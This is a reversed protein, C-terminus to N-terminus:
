YTDEALMFYFPLHCDLRVLTVSPDQLALRWAMTLLKEVISM